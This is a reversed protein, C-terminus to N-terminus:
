WEVTITIGFGSVTIRVPSSATVDLDIEPPVDVGKNKFWNKPNGRVEDIQGGQELEDVDALADPFKPHGILKHVQKFDQRAPM